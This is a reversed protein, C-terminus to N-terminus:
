NKTNLGSKFEKSIFKDRDANNILKTLTSFSNLNTVVGERSSISVLKNEEENIL